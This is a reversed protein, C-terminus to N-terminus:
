YTACWAAPLHKSAEGIIKLSRVVARSVVADHIIQEATYAVRCNQLFDVEDRIHLLLELPPFSM